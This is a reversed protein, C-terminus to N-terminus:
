ICVEKLCPFIEQVFDEDVYLDDIGMQRRSYGENLKEEDFWHSTDKFFCFFEIQIQVV